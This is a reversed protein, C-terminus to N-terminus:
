KLPWQRLREAAELMKSAVQEATRQPNDNWRVVYRSPNGSSEGQRILNEIEVLADFANTHLETAAAEIAGVACFRCAEPSRTRVSNGIADRAMNGRIWVGPVLLATAAAELTDAVKDNQM